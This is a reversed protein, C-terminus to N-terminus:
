SRTASVRGSYASTYRTTPPRSRLGACFNEYQPKRESQLVHPRFVGDEFWFIPQPPTHSRDAHSDFPDSYSLFDANLAILYFIIVVVSGAVALYHKRFRWWMLQWQTAVLIREDEGAAAIGTGDAVPVAAEAM